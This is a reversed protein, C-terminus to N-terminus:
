GNTEAGGSLARRVATRVAPEDDGESRRVANLARIGGIRGLALAACARLEPPERRGLLSRHNLIRDLVPVADDKGLDAFASFMAMQESLDTGRIDRGEIIRQLTARAPTYHIDALVRAAGMRLDRRDGDLHGELAEALVTAPIRRAAELVAQQVEEGGSELLQALLPAAPKHRLAGMLRVAGAVVGPDSHSLFRSIREEEGRALGLMASRIADKTEPRSLQETRALLPGLAAPRLHRLLLELDGRDPLTESEEASRVLERVSDPSSFDELISEVERLARPTLRDSRRNRVGEMEGLLLAAHRLAGQSLFTPLLQQLGSVVEEQREPTATEDELRDFLAALVDTRVDRSMERRYESELYDKERADMAYLTPNFDEPRIAHIEDLITAQSAAEADGPDSTPDAGLEVELIRHPDLESTDEPPARLLVGEPLLDVASYDLFQLDLDWLLTVLDDEEQRASRMRHLVDLVQELEDGEMGRRFTLDRIGDRYILFALSASRNEERYVEEGLWLFRDEEVLIQLEDRERWIVDFADRLNGVFRLFVPNTRDYLQYSRLTKSLTLFLHRVAEVPLSSPDEWEIQPEPPDPAVPPRGSSAPTGSQDRVM